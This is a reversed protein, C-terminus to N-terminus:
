GLYKPTYPRNVIADLIRKDISETFIQMRIKWFPYNLCCFMPPRHISAGEAFPLKNEAMEFSKKKDFKFIKGSCQSSVL